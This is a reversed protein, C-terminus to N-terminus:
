ADGGNQLLRFSQSLYLKTYCIMWIITGQTLHFYSLVMKLFLWCVQPYGRLAKTAHVVYGSKKKAEGTFNFYM